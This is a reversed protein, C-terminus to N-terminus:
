QSTTKSVSKSRPNLRGFSNHTKGRNLSSNLSVSPESDRKSLSLDDKDLKKLQEDTDGNQSGPTVEWTLEMPGESDLLFDELTALSKLQLGLSEITKRCEAFKSTALALEKEQKLESNIGEGHVIDTDKHLQAENKIKLLEGELKGCKVLNEASLAREKEIDEELSCIKSVLEEAETQAVKLKSEAIEKKEQTVKLKEFAEENSKNALALKALNEASLTREKEIEEELSCIKSILKEAKTQAVTLKSEAIEKKEQTIKLKEFAEENSKNALALKALNEASLAREKEIEEELSCIKSILEEVETEVVRLKSEAIEKKEQTIKLKQFADENSKNALALKTQLEVIELEVEKMVNLSAELQKQCETLDMEVELKEIEMKELKKELAVNKQVMAEVEANRTDPGVNLQESATGVMPFSSVSETDPLAALREMELFDDMLNIETSFVMRNKVNTSENQFQDFETILSNYHNPEGESTDWGGIKRVDSEFILQREGIDSMSDTFSEVYVSSAALSRHDNASLAKRTLAKLRRCEAELKAVKKISELHQKSAAEAAQTSLDREITRFELEELRSQLEIKLSSNEKEMDELRQHLASDVLAAANTKDPDALKREHDPRQSELGCTINIVSGHIKQEQEEKAQRLEKMCEKLEVNLCSVQDELVSNKQKAADLQQKLIMVENEAKEWGSVAEEAVKAHQKVLNEKVSSNLLAASLKETLTKVDNVEDSPAAECTEEPSPTNLAPYVQDESFRESHSLMSGSSETEASSKESSKRRWLWSRQTLELASDLSHLLLRHFSSLSLLTLSLLFNHHSINNLSITKNTQSAFPCLLPLPVM